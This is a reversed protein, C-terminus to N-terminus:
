CPVGYLGPGRRGNVGPVRRRSTQANWVERTCGVFVLVDDMAPSGVVYDTPICVFGLMCLVRRIAKSGPSGARLPSGLGDCRRAQLNRAQIMVLFRCPGASCLQEEQCGPINSSRETNNTHLWTGLGVSAAGNTGNRRATTTSNFRARIAGHYGTLRLIPERHFTAPPLALILTVLTQNSEVCVHEVQLRRYM